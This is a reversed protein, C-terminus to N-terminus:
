RQQLYRSVAQYAPLTTADNAANGAVPHSAFRAIVVQATPDIWLSQGHVGRAMFTGNADHSVWWMGRYSWGELQRYGARAFATRDGGGRIGRIVAAPIVQEAGVRGEDLMLQGLRAMDRLSANFGGGAFPTGISDVSFFADVDAGLRRWLRDAMVETLVKGTARSILWGLVDTNVTRYGFAQGHEGAGRVTQLFAFYTRPGSYGAPKPLANGAAAHKWVDADPDAYDESYDLATTMDLVQRVTAQGFASSSLEPIIDQVPADGKLLGEAVLVEGLLGVLSKTLSMAAHRGTPELCGAYREYVVRGQHLVLIGDTFNADFAQRWTMPRSAGWPQFRVADLDARERRPLPRIPGLGRSVARTPMLQDSHCVSWRLQPFSFAQPDGFGIVRDPPPPSGQMWGLVRPDSSAATWAGSGPALSAEAAL